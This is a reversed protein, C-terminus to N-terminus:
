SGVLIGSNTARYRAMPQSAPNSSASRRPRSEHNPQGGSRRYPRDNVYHGLSFPDSGGFRKNRLLSIPDIELMLAATCREDTSQPYFVHAKGVSLDFTQLRGPHKHLLFGLDTSDPGAYSITLLM